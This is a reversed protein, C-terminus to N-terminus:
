EQQYIFDRIKDDVADIENWIEAMPEISEDVDRLITMVLTLVDLAADLRVMNAESLKKTVIEDKPVKGFIAKLTGPEMHIEFDEEIAYASALGLSRTEIGFQQVFQRFQKKKSFKATVVEDYKEGGNVSKFDQVDIVEISLGMSDALDLVKQAYYDRKHQKM